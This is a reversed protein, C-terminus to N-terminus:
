WKHWGDRKAKRAKNEGDKRMQDREQNKRQGGSKAKGKTTDIGSIERALRRISAEDVPRKEADDKFCLEIAQRVEQMHARTFNEHRENGPTPVHQQLQQVLHGLRFLHHKSPYNRERFQEACKSLVQQALRLFVPIKNAKKLAGLSERMEERTEGDLKHEIAIIEDIVQIAEAVITEPTPKIEPM